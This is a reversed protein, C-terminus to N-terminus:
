SPGLSRDLKGLLRLFIRLEEDSLASFADALAAEQEDVLVERRARGEDSLYIRNCRGAKERLLLGDREMADLLQTVNGKTVLLKGALEQQTRGEVTGAHNLVDFRGVSLGHQRFREASEQDIKQYIRALRLWALTTANVGNTRPSSPTRLDPPQKTEMYM